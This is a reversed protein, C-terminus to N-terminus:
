IEILYDHSNMQEGAYDQCKLDIEYIYPKDKLFPKVREWDIKGKGLELSDHHEGMSDVVHFYEIKDKYKNLLRILEDNNGKNSIFAHSVDFCLPPNLSHVVEDSISGDSLDFGSTLNEWLFLNDSKDMFYSILEILKLKSEELNSDDPRIPHVVCKINYDKVIKAMVELSFFYFAQNESDDLIISSDKGNYSMPFHLYVEIGLTQCFSIAEELRIRGPGLIDEERLFFEIIDPKYSLRNFLQKPYIDGKLGLKM